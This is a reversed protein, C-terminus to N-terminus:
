LADIENAYCDFCMERGAAKAEASLECGCNICHDEDVPQFVTDDQSADSM